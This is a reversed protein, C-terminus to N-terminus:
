DGRGNSPLLALGEARERIAVLREPTIRKKLRNDNYFIDPEAPNYFIVLVDAGLGILKIRKEVDEIRDLIQKVTKM